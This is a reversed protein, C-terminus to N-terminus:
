LKQQSLLLESQYDNPDPTQSKPMKTNSKIKNETNM